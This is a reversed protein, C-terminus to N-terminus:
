RMFGEVLDERLPEIREFNSWRFNRRRGNEDWLYVGQARSVRPPRPTGVPAYFSLVSGGKPTDGVVGKTAASNTM